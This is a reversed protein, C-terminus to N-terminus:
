GATLKATGQYYDTSQVTGCGYSGYRTVIFNVYTPTIPTTFRTSSTSITIAASTSNGVRVSLCSNYGNGGVTEGSLLGGVSTVKYYDNYGSTASDNIPVTFSVTAGSSTVAQAAVTGATGVVTKADAGKPEVVESQSASAYGSASASVTFSQASSSSNSAVTGPPTSARLQGSEKM